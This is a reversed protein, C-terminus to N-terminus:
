ERGALMQKAIEAIARMKFPDKIGPASEIGSAIDVGDPKATEMAKSINESTLGGALLITTNRLEKPRPFLLDWRATKGTGGRQVPDYADVLLGLLRSHKKETWALVSKRDEAQDRWCVAKIFRVSNLSPFASAQDIWEPTEDGHLQICDLPCIALVADVELPSANVFVGVRVVLNDAILSLGCAVEPSVYRPSPKYFNLGIADAGCEIAASVDATRTLGCFKIKPLRIEIAM